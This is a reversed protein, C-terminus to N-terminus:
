WGPRQIRPIGHYETLDFFLNEDVKNDSSKLRCVGRWGFDICLNYRGDVKITEWADKMDESWYIDDFIMIGGEDMLPILREM